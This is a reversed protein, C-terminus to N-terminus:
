GVEVLWTSHRGLPGYEPRRCARGAVDPRTYKGMDCHGPAPDRMRGAREGEPRILNSGSASSIELGRSARSCVATFYATPARFGLFRSTLSEHIRQTGTKREAWHLALIRPM